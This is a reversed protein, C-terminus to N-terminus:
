ASLRPGRPRAPTLPSSAAAFRSPWTPAPISPSWWFPAAWVNDFRMANNTFYPLGYYLFVAQLVMPTGRFVEVYIRIVARLLRLLVRRPLRDQPHIPITNLLGCALGILCGLVTAAVALLLTNVVGSLYLPAYRTWLLAMDQGLALVREM